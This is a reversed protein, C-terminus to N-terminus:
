YNSQISDAVIASFLRAGDENLHSKDRFLNLNNIFREDQLLNIIKVNKDAAISKIKNLSTNEKTSYNQLSPSIFILLNVNNAKANAIFSTYASIFNPDLPAQSQKETSTSAKVVKLDSVQPLYGNYDKQPSIAYKLIHALTSNTQYAKFILKIDVLKSNHELAAKIIDRNEWYYPQLDKLRDYFKSNEELWNDDVNLVILEPTTRQLILKQLTSTFLIGQGRVGTNYCTKQLKEEIVEPIYHRVAHSSGFILIDHSVNQISNTIRAQKGTKQSFFLSKAAYGLSFDVLLVIISFKIFKLAILKLENKM